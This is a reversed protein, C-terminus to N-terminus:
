CSKAGRNGKEQEWAILKGSEVVWWGGQRTEGCEVGFRGRAKYEPDPYAKSLMSHQTGLGGGAGVGM